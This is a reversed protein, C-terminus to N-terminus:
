EESILIHWHLVWQSTHKADEQCINKHDMWVLIEAGYFINHIHKLSEMISILEKDTIPYNLCQISNGLFFNSITKEEKTNPNVLVLFGGLQTDNSDTYPIFPHNIDLYALMISETIVAM